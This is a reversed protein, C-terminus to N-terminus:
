RSSVVCVSLTDVKGEPAYLSSVILQNVATPTGSLFMMVFRLAIAKRDVLGSNTFAQVLFVGIVPLMVMKAFTSFFMAALPLRSLPRPITINAFSAGLLVLALPVTIGGLFSGTDILFALPPRGDPGKFVPGGEDSIDVFLAKLTPVLAIPLSIALTITVPTIIASLPRFVRVLRQPLLGGSLTATTSHADADDKHLPLSHTSHAPTPPPVPPLPAGPHVSTPLSGRRHAVVSPTTSLRSTRRALQVDPDPHAAPTDAQAVDLASTSPGDIPPISFEVGKGMKEDDVLAEEDKCPGPHPRAFSDPVPAHLIHTCILRGFPKEKWSVRVEAAEGQPVDPKYDWSLSHAAGLMWFVIHYAVIFIAVYSVGLSEDVSPDFPAQQTISLVVATPLNGWNSMGCLVIIGQWFNRPVYCFERIALGSIFGIAQYTFAILFLPGIAAINSSTFAPVVNAFLLAPLAMNMTVQSAGRSAAPPFLGMRAVAYGAAITIYTKILPLIGSYILYSASPM